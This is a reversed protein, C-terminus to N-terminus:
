LSFRQKLFEKFVIAKPTLPRNPHLLYLKIEGPFEWDKLIQVFKNSKNMAPSGIFIGGGQTCVEELFVVDQSLLAGSLNFKHIKRKGKQRLSLNIGNGYIRLTLIRHSQLEDPHKPEGHEELYKKSAYFSMGLDQLYTAKLSSDKMPGFAARLAFDINDDNFSLTKESMLVELSIRPYLNLFEAMYKTLEAGRYIGQATTIRLHGHPDIFQDKIESQVGKLLEISQEAVKKYKLGELTPASKGNKLQILAIDLTKELRSIRRSVSGKTEGLANAAQSISGNDVVACFAALDKINPLTEM